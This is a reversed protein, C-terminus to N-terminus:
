KQLRVVNPFFFLLRDIFSREISMVYLCSVHISYVLVTLLELIVSRNNTSNVSAIRCSKSKVILSNILLLYTVVIEIIFM